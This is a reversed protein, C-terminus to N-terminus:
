KKLKKVNMFRRCEEVAAKVDALSQGRYLRCDNVSEAICEVDLDYIDSDPNGCSWERGDEIGKYICYM